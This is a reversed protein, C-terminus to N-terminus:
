GNSSVADAAREGANMPCEESGDTLLHGVGRLLAEVTASWPIPCFEQRVRAEWQALGERDVIVDRIVAYADHLNDPDFRRVLEGGAERLSTRDAIVCPKGFSLSESVPLGWGEAFSPFLTFLCGQYLAALEADTPNETIVLRGGLNETNAIQQMLDDVFWGVRGAFVLIPVEAEPLEQLLRQWVRFLLLHNKRAEITSVFLAYTGPAPLRATKIPRVHENGFGSGMPLPIVKPLREHQEHAYATVDAATARSITFVFDCLPLVSRYWASFLRILSPACWEPHRLPILDYVLLVFRLGRAQQARVLAAYDPRFWPSGLVVLFDGPAAEQAFADGGPRAAAVWNGLRAARRRMGRVLLAVIGVWARIAVIQARMAELLLIRLSLPLQRGLRGLVGAGPPPRVPGAQVSWSRQAQTLGAFLAAVDEWAVPRFSARLPDYRVFRVLGSAGYREQLM